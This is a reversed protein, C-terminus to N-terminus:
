RAFKPLVKLKKTYKNGIEISWGASHRMRQDILPKM